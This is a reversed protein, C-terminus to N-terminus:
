VEALGDHIYCGVEPPESMVLCLVIGHSSTRARMVFSYGLLPSVLPANSSGIRPQICNSVRKPEWGPPVPHCYGLAEANPGFRSTALDRLSPQFENGYIVSTTRLTTNKLCLWSNRRFPSRTITSRRTRSINFNVDSMGSM